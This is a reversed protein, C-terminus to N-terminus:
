WGVDDGESLAQQGQGQWGGTTSLFPALCIGCSKRLAQDFDAMLDYRYSLIWLQWRGIAEALTLNPWRHDVSLDRSAVFGLLTCSRERCQRTHGCGTVLM